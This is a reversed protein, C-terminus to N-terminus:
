KQYEFIVRLKNLDLIEEGFLEKFTEESELEEAEITRFEKSLFPFFRKLHEKKHTKGLEKMPVFKKQKAM